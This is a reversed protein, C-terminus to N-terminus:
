VKERHRGAEIADAACSLETGGIQEGYFEMAGGPGNNRLWAVVAAREEDKATTLALTLRDVEALLAHRDEAADLFARPINDVVDVMRLNDRRRIAEIDSM